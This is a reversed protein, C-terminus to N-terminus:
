EPQEPALVVRFAYCFAERGPCAQRVVGPPAEAGRLPVRCTKHGAALFEVVPDEDDLFPGVGGFRYDVKFTGDAETFAGGRYRYGSERSRGWIAVRAGAIPEVVSDRKGSVTGTVRYAADVTCASLWLVVALAVGRLGNRRGQMGDPTRRGSLALHRESM